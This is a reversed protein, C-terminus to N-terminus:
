SCPVRYGDLSCLSPGPAFVPMREDAGRGRAGAASAVLVLTALLAIVIAALRIELARIAQGKSGFVTQMEVGGPQVSPAHAAAAM